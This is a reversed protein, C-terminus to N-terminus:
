CSTPKPKDACLLMLGKKSSNKIKKSAGKTKTAERLKVIAAENNGLAVDTLSVWYLAEAKNKGYTTPALSISKILYERAMKSKGTEWALRGANFYGLFPFKIDCRHAHNECWTPVSLYQVM